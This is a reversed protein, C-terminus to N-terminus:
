LLLAASLSSAPDASSATGDDGELKVATGTGASVETSNNSELYRFIADAIENVERVSVGMYACLLAIPPDSPAAAQGQGHFRKPTVKVGAISAAMCMCACTIAKPEHTLCADTKYSDNMWCWAMQLFFDRKSGEAEIVVQGWYDVLILYPHRFQLDFSLSHLIIRETKLVKERVRLFDSSDTSLPSGGSRAGETVLDHVSHCINIIDEIRKQTEEVKCALFLATTAVYYRDHSNFSHCM